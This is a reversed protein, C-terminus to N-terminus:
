ISNFIKNLYESIFIILFKQLLIKKNKTNKATVPHAKKVLAVPIKATLIPASFIKPLFDFFWSWPM